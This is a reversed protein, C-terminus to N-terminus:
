KPSHISHITFRSSNSRGQCPVECANGGGGAGAVSRSGFVFRSGWPSCCLWWVFRFFVTVSSLLRSFWEHKLPLYGRYPVLMDCRPFLFIMKLPVKTDSINTELLICWWRKQPKINKTQFFVRNKWSSNIASIRCWRPDIFGQFYQSFQWTLQHPIEVMSLIDATKWGFHNWTSRTM